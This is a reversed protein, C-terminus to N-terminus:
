QLQISRGQRASEEIASLIKMAGVAEGITTGRDRDEGRFHVAFFDEVEARYLALHDRADFRKERPVENTVITIARIPTQGIGGFAEVKGRTGYILIHNGPAPMTWSSALVVTANGYILVAVQDGPSGPALESASHGSVRDPMGFFSIALDVLHVGNDAFTGWGGRTHDLKWSASRDRPNLEYGWQMWSTAIKGIQGTTLAARIDQVAQQHRMHHAVMFPIAPKQSVIAEIQLAEELSVSLPKECIVPIDRLLAAKINRAHLFPPTAIYAADYTRHDLLDEVDTYQDSIGFDSAVRRVRERDRGQIAVVECSRSERLAPITREAAFGTAGIIALTHKM